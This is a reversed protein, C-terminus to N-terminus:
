PTPEKSDLARTITEMAADWGNEWEGPVSAGSPPGAQAATRVRTIAAEANKLEDAFVTVLAHTLAETDNRCLACTYTYSHGPEGPAPHHDFKEEGPALTHGTAPTTRLALDIREVLPRRAPQDTM